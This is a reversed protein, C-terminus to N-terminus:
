PTVRPRGLAQEIARRVLAEILEIRYWGAAKADDDPQLLTSALKGARAALEGDVSAGKLERLGASLDAPTPTVGGVTVCLRTLREGQREVLAVVACLAFDGRRRSFIEFGWGTHAPLIPWRTGILLEDASLATTMTGVLFEKAAIDRSGRPGRVQLSAGLAVALLPWQAAPDAHALSGGLTGQTRIAYHAISHAVLPLIPMRVRLLASEEIDVHRTRAGIEIDDGHDSVGALSDLRGIDVLHEPRAMRLNMMPVLSQGGALVKASDGYRTLLELAADITTPAHYTFAAPKM